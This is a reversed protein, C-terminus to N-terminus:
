HESNSTRVLKQDTKIRVHRKLWQTPRVTEPNSATQVLQSAVNPFNEKPVHSISQRSASMANQFLNPGSLLVM